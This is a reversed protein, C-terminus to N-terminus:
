YHYESNFQQMESALEAFKLVSVQHYTEIPDFYSVELGIASIQYIYPAGETHLLIKIKNQKKM